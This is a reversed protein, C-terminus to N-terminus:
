KTEYKLGFRKTVNTGDIKFTADLYAKFLPFLRHNRPPLSNLYDDSGLEYLKLAENLDFEGLKDLRSMLETLVVGDIKANEKLCLSMYQYQPIPMNLVTTGKNVATFAKDLAETVEAQTM